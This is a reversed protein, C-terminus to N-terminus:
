EKGHKKRNRGAHHKEDNKNQNYQDFYYQKKLSVLYKEPFQITNQM